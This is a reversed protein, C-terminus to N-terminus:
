ILLIWRGLRILVSLRALTGGIRATVRGPRHAQDRHRVLRAPPDPGEFGPLRSRLLARPRRAAMFPLILSYSDGLYCTGYIAECKACRYVSAHGDVITALRHSCVPCGAGEPRRIRKADKTQTTTITM